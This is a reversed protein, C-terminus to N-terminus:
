DHTKTKQKGKFLFVYVVLVLFITLLISMEVIHEQPASWIEKFVGWRILIELANWFIIVTATAYRVVLARDKMRFMKRGQYTAWIIAGIGVLWVVPHKDGAINPNYITMLLVYGFWMLLTSEMFVVIATKRPELKGLRGKIRLIKQVWNFFPCKNRTFLYFLLVIVLLGVTSPIMLYEPKSLVEGNRMSAPIQLDHAIWVFSFEVWGTWVLMGALLGLMSASLKKEDKMFGIFLLFVGILGVILAGIYQQTLVNEILKMLGHALGISSFVIIIATIGFYYIKKKM